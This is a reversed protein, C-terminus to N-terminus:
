GIRSGASCSPFFLCPVIPRKVYTPVKNEGKYRAAYSSWKLLGDSEPKDPSNQPQYTSEQQLCNKIPKNKQLEQPACVIIKPKRVGHWYGRRSCRQSRLPITDDLPFDFDSDSATPQLDRIQGPASRPAQASPVASVKTDAPPQTYSAPQVVMSVEEIKVPVEPLVGAPPRNVRSTNVPAPEPGAAPVASPRAAVPRSASQTTEPSRGTEIPKKAVTM